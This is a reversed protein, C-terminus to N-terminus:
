SELLKCSGLHNDSKIKLALKTNYMTCITPLAQYDSEHIHTWPLRPDAAPVMPQVFSPITLKESPQLAGAGPELKIATARREWHSQLTDLSALSRSHYEQWPETYGYQVCLVELIKDLLAITSIALPVMDEVARDPRRPHPLVDAATISPPKTLLGGVNYTCGAELVDLFRLAVFSARLVDHSTYFALEESGRTIISTAEAYQVAYEFVTANIHESSLDATGPASLFLIDVYLVESLFLMRSPRSISQPLNEAWARTESLGGAIIPWPDNMTERNSHYLKQYTSSELQRLRRLQTAPELAQRFIQERTAVEPAVNASDDTFSFARRHVM